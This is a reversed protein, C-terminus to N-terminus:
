YSECRLRRANALPTSCDGHIRLANAACDGDIQHRICQSGVSVAIRSWPSQAALQFFKLGISFKKSTPPEVAFASLSVAFASLSRFGFFTRNATSDCDFKVFHLLPMFMKVAVNLSKLYQWVVTGQTALLISRCAFRISLYNLLNCNLVTKIKCVFSVNLQLINIITLHVKEVPKM